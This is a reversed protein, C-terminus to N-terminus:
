SKGWTVGRWDTGTVKKSGRVHAVNRLFTNPATMITESIETGQIHKCLPNRNKYSNLLINRIETYLYQFRTKLDLSIDINSADIHELHTTQQSDDILFLNDTTTKTVKLDCSTEHYTDLTSIQIKSEDNHWTTGDASQLQIKM